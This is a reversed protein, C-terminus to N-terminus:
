EEGCDEIEPQETAFWSTWCRNRLIGVCNQTSWAWTHTDEVLKGYYRGLYKIFQCFKTGDPLINFMTAMCLYVSYIPFDLIAVHTGRVRVHEYIEEKSSYTMKKLKRSKSILCERQPAFKPHDEEPLFRGECWADRRKPISKGVNVAFITWLLLWRSKSSSCGETKRLRLSNKSSCTRSTNRRSDLWSNTSLGIGRFVSIWPRCTDPLDRTHPITSSQTDKNTDDIRAVLKGTSSLMPEGITATPSRAYVNRLFLHQRNM